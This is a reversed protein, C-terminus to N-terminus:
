IEIVCACACVCVGFRPWELLIGSHCISNFPQGVDSYEVVTTLQRPMQTHHYGPKKQIAQSWLTPLPLYQRLKDQLFVLVLLWKSRGTRESSERTCVDLACVHVCVYACACVRVCMCMCVCRSGEVCTCVHVYVCACACVCVRVCVCVCFLMHLAENLQPPPPM